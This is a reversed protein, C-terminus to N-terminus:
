KVFIKTAKTTKVKADSSELLEGLHPPNILATGQIVKSTITAKPSV